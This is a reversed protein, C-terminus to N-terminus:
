VSARQAAAHARRVKALRYQRVATVPVKVTWYALGALSLLLIVPAVAWDEGGGAPYVNAWDGTDLAAVRQGVQTVSNGGGLEVGDRRDKGDDSVFSGQWFCGDKGYRCNEATFTGHIGHGLTASWAPGVNLIAM